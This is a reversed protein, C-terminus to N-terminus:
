FRQFTLPYVISPLYKRKKLWLSAELTESHSLQHWHLYKIYNCGNSDYQHSLFTAEVECSVPNWHLSTTAHRRRHEKLMAMMM